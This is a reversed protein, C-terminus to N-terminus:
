TKWQATKPQIASPALIRCASLSLGLTGWFLPAVCLSSDNIIGTILYGLIGLFLCGLFLSSPGDTQPRVFSRYLRALCSKWFVLLCLLSLVSTQLATQLYLSHPKTLIQSFFKKGLWSRALYDDQPFVLPFSDPGTGLLLTNKLLPITRGWIYGRNTFAKDLRSPFVSEANEMQDPKGYITYYIYGDETKLFDWPINECTFVLHCAQGEKYTQFELGEISDLRKGGSTEIHLTEEGTLSLSYDEGRYTIAIQDKKPSVRTLSAETEQSFVSTVGKVLRQDNAFNYVALLALLCFFGSFVWFRIQPHRRFSWLLVLVAMLFLTILGAKSGSFFLCLLLLCSLMGSSIKWKRSSFLFVGCISLPLFLAAYSGVYNPNYLAMYVSRLPDEGFTFRLTDRYQSLSDPVLLLKGLSTSFFDKGALQSLGLLCQLFVGIGMATGILKLDQRTQPLLACSFVCVAYGLLVWISEMQEAMGYMGASPYDSCLFSFFSLICYLILPLWFKVSFRPRARFRFFLLILMWACLFLFFFSRYYLFFDATESSSPYWPYSSLRAPVFKMRATLPLLTFLLFIPTLTAAKRFFRRM